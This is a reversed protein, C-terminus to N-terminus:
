KKYVEMAAVLPIYDDDWLFAKISAAGLDVLASVADASPYGKADPVYQGVSIMAGKDNYAAIIAQAENWMAYLTLNAAPMTIIEGPSYSTGEGDAQTNWEKFLPGPAAAAVFKMGAEKVDERPATGVVGNLNYFVNYDPTPDIELILRPARSPNAVAGEKTTIQYDRGSHNVTLAFTVANEATPVRNYISLV